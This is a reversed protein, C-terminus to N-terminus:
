GVGGGSTEGVDPGAEKELGYEPYLVRMQAITEELTWQGPGSPRGVAAFTFLSGLAPFFLRSLAGAPGMGITVLPACSREVTFRALARVDAMSACHAAIKVIDAGSHRAETEIDILKGWDPMRAFDHYSVIAPLGAAHAAAIVEDRIEASSLEIDVAASLPIVARYTELRKAESGTWGGGEHGARITALVPWDAFRRWVGPLDAVAEPRFQDLRLELIDPRARRLREVVEPSADDQICAVVRPIAGLTVNGFRIM